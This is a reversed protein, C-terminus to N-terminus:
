EDSGEDAADAKEPELLDDVGIIQRLLNCEIYESKHGRLVRAVMILTTEMHLLCEYEGRPLVITTTSDDDIDIDLVGLPLAERIDIKKGRLFKKM